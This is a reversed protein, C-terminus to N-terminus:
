LPSRGLASRLFELSTLTALSHIGLRAYAPVFGKFFGRAGSESFIRAAESAVGSRTEDARTYFRTKINDFPSSAATACLGAVAAACAHLTAGEEFEFLRRLQQKCFDYSGLQAATIVAARQSSPVVGKWLALVGGGSAICQRGTALLSGAVQNTMQRTKIIDAPNGVAAGCVGACAGSALMVALSSESSAGSFLRKFFPYLSIRTASYTCERL